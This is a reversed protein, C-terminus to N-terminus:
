DIARREIKTGAPFNGAEGIGLGFRVAAQQVVADGDSAM